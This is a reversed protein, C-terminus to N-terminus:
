AGAATAEHAFTIAAAMKAEDWDLHGLSTGESLLETYIRIARIGKRKHLLPFAIYFGFGHQANRALKRTPLPCPDKVEDWSHYAVRDIVHNRAVAVAPEATTVSAHQRIRITGPWRSGGRSQPVRSIGQGAAATHTSLDNSLPFTPGTPQTRQAGLQPGSHQPHTFPRRRALEKRRRCGTM